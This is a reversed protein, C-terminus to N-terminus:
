ELVFEYIIEATSLIQEENSVTPMGDGDQAGYMGFYAHCGGEIIHESLTKPLNARNEEYKERNMVGDLSGYVSLVKIEEDSLDATSYAALLVIGNFDETNKDLYSAAMSGGLSHGGIYWSEIEPYSECLGDAANVDFVALNFPMRVLISLIGRAACARMLPIYATHEVKGGPYFILASHAELPEFVLVGDKLEYEKIEVSVSFDDIADADSKYFNMLYRACAYISAVLLLCLVLHAVTRKKIGLLRKM